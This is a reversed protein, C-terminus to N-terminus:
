NMIFNEGQENCFYQDIDWEGDNSTLIIDRVEFQILNIELIQYDKKSM